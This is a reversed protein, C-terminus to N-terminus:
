PTAEGTPADASPEGLAARIVADMLPLAEAEYLTVRRANPGRGVHMVPERGFHACYAHRVQVGLRIHQTRTLRDPYGLARLREKLSWRREDAPPRPVTAKRPRGRPRPQQTDWSRTRCNPCRDPRHGLISMWRWGCQQCHYARQKRPNQRPTMRHMIAM